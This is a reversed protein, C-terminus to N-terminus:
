RIVSVMIFTRDVAGVNHQNSLVQVSTTNTALTGLSAPFDGASGSTGVMAYNVDPMATTFNVTYDGTNNDTISSVNGSDRIAVTGTGNFNVWARAAYLPATGSVTAFQASNINPTTLTKNTLTQTGTLTAVTSDIAITGTTTIPGGTLGTGTAVSTVTGSATSPTTWTPAFGSGASTLVQGSTGAVSTLTLGSTINPTALTPANDLVM